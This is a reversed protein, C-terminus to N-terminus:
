AMVSVMDLVRLALEKQGFLQVNDLVEQPRVSKSFLKWAIQPPIIVEAHAEKTMPTILEWSEEKKQISWAGGIDGSITATVVTENASTVDRFTHPLGRMFTDIFPYFLERNMIGEMGLADRIQQQHHWKETYERALHMWNLSRNEGVWAVPFIAEDFLNLQEYYDSVLAGTTKHLLTLIEPSLRRTARVWDANLQNLWSVVDRYESSSPPQEGFYRDRQISLTRLNGDLLHSVVDKVRWAKAVTQKNWDKPEIEELLAVLLMDLPRFLPRVDLHSVSSKEM